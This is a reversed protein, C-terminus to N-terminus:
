ADLSQHWKDLAAGLKERVSTFQPAFALNSREDPDKILDFLQETDSGPTTSNRAPQPDAGNGSSYRIFKYREDRIMSQSAKYVAGLHSRREGEEGRLWPRLSQGDENVADSRALDLLTARTDAHWVLADCRARAAVGPGAFILPIGLSHQYMNQKGMLGHSGIGLGHDSTYVIVTNELLNRTEATALIQGIADDLQAIMGYYDALHERVAEESRPFGELLEDRLAADGNDFPHTPMVNAPLTLAGPDPRFHAPPTRPDHPATFAVYLLFPDSGTRSELFRQAASRFIETSFGKVEQAAEPPYAGDPDHHHLPVKDHDCMGGFFVSDATAFSRAFAARDNHWKGIGHTNYGESRLIEPFTRFETPITATRDTYPCPLGSMAKQAHDIAFVNRGTMLTARSPVCVAGDFGGQCHAADFSTGRAALADLHPTAVDRCGNTGISRHRHDDAIIFIFNPRESM